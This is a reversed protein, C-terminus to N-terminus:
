INGKIDNAGVIELLGKEDELSAVIELKNIGKPLELEYDNDRKYFNFIYIEKNSLWCISTRFISKIFNYFVIKTVKFTEVNIFIWIFNM